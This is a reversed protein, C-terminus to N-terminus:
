YSVRPLRGREERALPSARLRIRTLNVLNDLILLLVVATGSYTFVLFSYGVTPTSSNLYESVWPHVVFLFLKVKCARCSGTVRVSCRSNNGLTVVLRSVLHYSM